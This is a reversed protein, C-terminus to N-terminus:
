HAHAQHLKPYSDQGPIDDLLDNLQSKLVAYCECATKELKPRALVDIKGRSYKIIGARQLNGAAESVGERRVGLMSAILEHTMSISNSALRDLATLLFRCLQQEVSHHRNCVATQASQTILTQLYRLLVHFVPGAQDFEKKLLSAKIRYGSGASQVIGHCPNSGGILRSMGVMGENGILATEASSGDELMYVLAVIATTPFYIYQL